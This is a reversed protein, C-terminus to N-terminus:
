SIFMIKKKIILEQIVLSAYALMLAKAFVNPDANHESKLKEMIAPNLLTKVYVENLEPEFTKIKECLAILNEDM